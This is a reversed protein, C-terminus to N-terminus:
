YSSQIYKEIESIEAIQNHARKCRQTLTLKTLGSQLSTM